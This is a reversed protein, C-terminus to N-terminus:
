ATQLPRYTATILTFMPHLQIAQGLKKLRDYVTSIGFRAREYKNLVRAFHLAFQREMSRLSRCQSHSPHKEGCEAERRLRIKDETAPRKGKM